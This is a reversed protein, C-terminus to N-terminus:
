SHTTPHSNIHPPIIPQKYYITGTVILCLTVQSSTAVCTQQHKHAATSERLASM